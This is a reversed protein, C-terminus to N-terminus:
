RSPAGLAANLAAEMARLPATAPRGARETGEADDSVSRGTESKGIDASATYAEFQAAAQYLLMRGGHVTRAGREQADALLKTRVPKYVIDMVVQGARFAERPVPSALDVDVQGLATANVVVDYAGARAVEGFEASQTRAGVDAALREAKSADRNAITTRAKKQALGFAIARAAGGAGLLLVSAGGLPCVEELARVAGIWDTNHGVLHGDDNVITNVAGIRAAVPDLADLLPMVEQKFPHSVGFGRIGLARMGTLAGALDRVEFPVYTFPLGLARYGAEHMSRGLPSALRSLSGCLTVPSTV